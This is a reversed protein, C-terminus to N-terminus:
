RAHQNCMQSPSTSTNERQLFFRHQRRLFLDYAASFEVASFEPFSSLIFRRDERARLSFSSLHVRPAAQGRDASLSLKSLTPHLEDSSSDNCLTAIHPM